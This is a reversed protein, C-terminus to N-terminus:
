FHSLPFFFFFEAISSENINVFHCIVQDYNNNKSFVVKWTTFLKTWHFQLKRIFNWSPKCYRYFFSSQIVSEIHILRAVPDRRASSLSITMTYILQHTVDDIGVVSSKQTDYWIGWSKRLRYWDFSSWPRAIIGALQKLNHCPWWIPFFVTQLIM